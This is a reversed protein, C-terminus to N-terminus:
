AIQIININGLPPSVVAYIHWVIYMPTSASITQRFKFIMYIHPLGNLISFLVSAPEQM